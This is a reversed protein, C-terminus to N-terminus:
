LSLFDEKEEAEECSPRLEDVRCRLLQILELRRAAEAHKIEDLKRQEFEAWFHSEGSLAPYVGTELVGPIPWQTRVRAASLAQNAWLRHHWAHSRIKEFLARFRPMSVEGRDLMSRKVDDSSKCQMLAHRRELVIALCAVAFLHPENPRTLIHDWVQQWQEPELCATLNTRLLPWGYAQPGARISDLHQALASDVARLSKNMARFVVIPAHPNSGLFPGHWHVLVCM